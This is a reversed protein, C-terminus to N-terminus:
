KYIENRKDFDPNYNSFKLYFCKHSEPVAKQVIFDM